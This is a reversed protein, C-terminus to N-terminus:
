PRWFPKRAERLAAARDFGADALVSDPQLLLDDRMMARYRHRAYWLAILGAGPSTGFSASAITRPRAPIPGLIVAPM